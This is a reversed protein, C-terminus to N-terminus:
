SHNSGQGEDMNLEITAQSADLRKGLEKVVTQLVGDITAASWIKSNIEAIMRERIAAQRSESILRANELAVAAQKAVADVLSRQEATLEEKGDISIEGLIQDRLSIPIDVTRTKEHSEDGVTYEMAKNETTFGKWGELLYQQQVAQMEKIVQQAEQFLRANELAIAVQSAMNQMTDIVQPGFDSERTSQVDLAGLVRNGVM